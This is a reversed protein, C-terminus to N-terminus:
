RRPDPGPGAPLARRVLEALRATSGPSFRELAHIVWAEAGVPVLGSGREAARVIAAAVLEVGHGRRRLLRQIHRRLAEPEAEGVIRAHEAIPTDVFGPCVLSVGIQSAALEERLGQSLGVLGHKTAGYAVLERPTYFAAASAVNVIQGCRAREIMAPVFARCVLAPGRLNVDLVHDWDEAATALLGGVVVVGAANVLVDAVGLEAEVTARFREVEDGRTVDVVVEALDGGGRRRVEEAVSRLGEADRDGLAVRAGREALLLATARGIGSAAGTVVAVLGGVSGVGKTRV